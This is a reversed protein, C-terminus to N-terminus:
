FELADPGGHGSGRGYRGKGKGDMMKVKMEAAKAKQEDTLLAFIQSRTRTGEVMLQASLEGQKNAIALVQAEDFAGNATIEGLKEHNAKMAERIPQLKAKNAERIQKIQAKQEDNLDLGRLMMGGMEHGGHGFVHGKGGGRQAIVFIAGLALVIMAIIGITVKKM